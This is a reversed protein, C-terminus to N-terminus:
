KANSLRSIILQIAGAVASISLVWTYKVVGLGLYNPLRAVLWVAIFNAFVLYIYHKVSGKVVSTLKAFILTWVLSAVVAASISSHLSSGLVFKGPYFLSAVYLLIGNHLWYILFLALKKM